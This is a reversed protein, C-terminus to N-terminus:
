IKSAGTCIRIIRLSQTTGTYIQPRITGYGLQRRSSCSGVPDPRCAAGNAHPDLSIDSEAVKLNVRNRLPNPSVCIEPGDSNKRLLNPHPRWTHNPGYVGVPDINRPPDPSMGNEPVKSSRCFQGSCNEHPPETINSITFNVCSTSGLYISSKPAGAGPHSNRFDDDAFNRYNGSPHYGHQGLMLRHGPSNPRFLIKSVMEIASQKESKLEDIQLQLEQIETKSAALRHELIKHDAISSATLRNKSATLREALTTRNVKFQLLHDAWDSRDTALGENEQLIKELDSELQHRLRRSEQIEAKLIELASPGRTPERAFSWVQRLSPRMLKADEASLTFSPVYPVTFPTAEYDPTFFSSTSNAYDASVNPDELPTELRKFPNKTDSLNAVVQRVFILYFLYGLIIIGFAWYTGNTVAEVGQVLFSKWQYYGIHIHHHITQGHTSTIGEQVMLTFLGFKCLESM